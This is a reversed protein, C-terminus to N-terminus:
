GILERDCSILERWATSILLVIVSIAIDILFVWATFTWLILGLKVRLASGLAM